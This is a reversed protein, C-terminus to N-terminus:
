GIKNMLHQTETIWVIIKQYHDLETNTLRSGKRNKIWQQAPQNGGVTFNWTRASINGFYQRDNIWLKGDTFKTYVVTNDGNEPYTTVSDDLESAEFLHLALLKEGVHVYREFEANDPPGPIRPFADQLYDGFEGRYSPSHLMAYIYALTQEPTPDISLKRFLDNKKNQNINAMRSGDDAYLYLPFANVGGRRFINADMPYRSVTVLSWETNGVALGQRGVGLVLNDRGAVHKKFLDRPYDSTTEAFHTWRRDGLRYQVLQLDSEKLKEGLLTERAEAVKWDRNDKLQFETAIDDDSITADAFRNMRRLMETPTTAIAFHDRHTQFGLTNANFVEDVRVFSDYKKRLAPNKEPRFKYSTKELAVEHWDFDGVELASFKDERRGYLDAQYVRASKTSSSTKVALIIAAGQEIDFVNEDKGGDPAKDQKKVSGHLDLIFIKDFTRSLHWRMGRFTPNDIYGNNTIMGVVGHGNKSIMSEAFSLFKVYDDNIWKSNTEQLKSKGGPEVKYKKVLDTAFPTKNNSEGKWPPNGLIVMVPRENKVAAALRSEESVVDSLGFSFLDPETPVGEELTNTLYVNLRKDLEGVGTEALTMGLKLHAITYPAMMLEFGFVRPLLQEEVYAPWRGEQGEFSERIFKITENLFTATGVAPDLLQVRPGVKNATTTKIGKHPQAAVQYTVTGTDTLGNPINLESRLLKDISKVIYKVVPIPTYYAGMSKRIKPDYASLFDEYFHIIPDKVGETKDQLRLHRHVIDAVSSVAFVDSLEDVITALRQDFQSGAIHDFFQRLFPNSRPVLDRAEARTFSTPSKDRYRAVFLGYVLTQAYMDSFNEVSMDHVLMTKMLGYIKQLDGTEETDARIYVHVDDKIRRAKAGMIQALRRGSRIKEPPLSLFARLERWLREGQSLDFTLNGRKVEGIRITQYKDGNKYFRFELYDTLLLNTYGVYRKMQDTKEVSDLNKGIDKAEAYGKIMASNSKKLFVFDPAGHESHKPDNVATTDEFSAMLDRLAPRYADEVAHGSHFQEVVDDVYKQIIQLATSMNYNFM